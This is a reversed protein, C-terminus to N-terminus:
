DFLRKQTMFTNKHFNMPMVTDQINFLMDNSAKNSRHFNEYENSGYFTSRICFYQLFSNDIKFLFLLLEDFIM